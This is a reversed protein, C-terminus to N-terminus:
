NGKMERMVSKIYIDSLLDIVKQSISDQEISPIQSFNIKVWMRAKENYREISIIEGDDNVSGEYVTGNVDITKKNM